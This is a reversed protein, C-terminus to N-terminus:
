IRPAINILWSLRCRKTVGQTGGEGGRVSALIPVCTYQEVYLILFILPFLLLRKRKAYTHHHPPPPVGILRCCFFLTAVKMEINATAVKMEINATSQLGEATSFAASLLSSMGMHERRHEKTYVPAM